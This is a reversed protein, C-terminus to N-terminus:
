SLWDESHWTPKNLQQIKVPQIDNIFPAHVFGTCARASFSIIANPLIEKILSIVANEKSLRYELSYFTVTAEYAFINSLNILTPLNPDFSSLDISDILLDLKLFTYRVNPLRPANTTWYDLAKQNYDYMVVNVLDITDISDVWWIGSAPTFVQRIKSLKTNSWDTNSTHVFDTACYNHRAYLWNAHKLFEIQNEPYYHKKNNRIIDNFVLIPVNNEFGISLINWGHCQHNYEKIEDGASVWKPTYNDHYNNLSRRPVL